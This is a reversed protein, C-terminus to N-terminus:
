CIHRECGSLTARSGSGNSTGGSTNNGVATSATAILEGPAPALLHEIPHDFAYQLARRIVPTPRSNDRERRAIRGLHRGTLSIRENERELIAAVTRSAAEEWSLHGRQVLAHLLTAPQDKTM